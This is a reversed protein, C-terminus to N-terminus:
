VMSFKNCSGPISMRINTPPRKPSFSSVNCKYITKKIYAIANIVGGSGRAAKIVCSSNTLWEENTSCNIDLIKLSSGGQLCIFHILNGVIELSKRVQKLVVDTPLLLCLFLFIVLMDLLYGKTEGAGCNSGFYTKLHVNIYKLYFISWIFMDPNIKPVRQVQNSTFCVMM